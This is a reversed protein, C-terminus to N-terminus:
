SLARLETKLIKGGVNRPLEDLFRIERPIKFDALQGRCFDILSQDTAQATERLVVFARLKEGWHHDAVGIVAVERVAPHRHLIEEIERPYINLGGSVVMDKKRDVIYYFGRADRRALDGASVWGDRMCARTEADNQWYGNFLYPSRSHLEGVAGEPVDQGREDLLRIENHPFPHGVCQQTTLQDPPRLNSVIGAETSGYSEHLLGAGFYEVIAVKTPQPLASANSIIAKLSGFRGRYAALTAAPLAFISHFLTPVLFVGTFSGSALLKLVHEADFRPLVEVEGGMYLPALAFAFGAGHAMPALALFRDSEAFCGYEQAMARFTRVRSRHPLLIGKPKGTTGSSYVLAFADEGAVAVPTPTLSAQAAADIREWNTPWLGLMTPRSKGNTTGILTAHGATAIDKLSPHYILVRADCNACAAAVEPAASRPNLTAVIVGIDSLGCVWEVYECCNPALLAVRDGHRLGFESQALAAIARIRRSLEAYSLTQSGLRLAIKQPTLQAAAHIGASIKADNSM